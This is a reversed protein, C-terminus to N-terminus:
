NNEDVHQNNTEDANPLIEGAQNKHSVKVALAALGGTSVAGAVVLGMTALCFPCM